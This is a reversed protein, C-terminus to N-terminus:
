IGVEVGILDVEDEDEEVVEADVLRLTFTDPVGSPPTGRRM